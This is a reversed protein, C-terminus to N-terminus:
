QAEATLTHLRLLAAATQAAAVDEVYRAVADRAIKQSELATVLGTAGEAYATFSM